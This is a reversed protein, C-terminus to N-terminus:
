GSVQDDPPSNADNVMREIIYLFDEQTLAYFNTNDGFSFALIPIKGNVCAELEIKTFWERKLTIQSSPKTKTKCEIRFLDTVVDSPAQWQNGSGPTTKGNMAKAVRAEQKRSARHKDM